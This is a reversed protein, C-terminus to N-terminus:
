NNKTSKTAPKAAKVVIGRSFGFANPLFFAKLLDNHKQQTPVNIV